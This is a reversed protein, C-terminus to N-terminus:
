RKLLKGKIVPKGFISIQYVYIGAALNELNLTVNSSKGTMEIVRKGSISNLELYYPSEHSNEFYLTTASSAPNPIAVSANNGYEFYPIGIVPSYGQGGLELRYYNLKNPYPSEDTFNFPVPNESSGCIGSIEGISEFHITDASREIITGNCTQGSNITWQLLVVDKSAKGIFGALLLQDQAIMSKSLMISLLISLIPIFRRFSM